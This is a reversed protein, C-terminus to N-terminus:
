HDMKTTLREFEYPGDKDRPITGHRHLTIMRKSVPYSQADQFMPEQIENYIWKSGHSPIQETSSSTFPNSSPKPKAKAKPKDAEQLSYRCNEIRSRCAARHKQFKWLKVLIEHRKQWIKWSYTLDTRFESGRNLDMELYLILESILEWSEKITIPWWKQYMVLKLIEVFGVESPQPNEFYLTSEVDLTVVLNNSNNLM